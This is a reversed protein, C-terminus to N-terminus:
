GAALPPFLEALEIGPPDLRFPGDGHVHSMFSSDALREHHIVRRSTPLVILYHRVSPKAFYGVMKYVEDVRRTSPSAVEVIILPDDILRDDDAISGGCKVMVDPIYIHTADTQVGMGDLLVQCPLDAATVADGLIRAVRTKMKVHGFTEPAMAVPEGAVLEYRADYQPDETWALFAEATMQSLKPIERAASM